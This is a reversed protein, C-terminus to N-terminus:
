NLPSGLPGQEPMEFGKARMREAIWALAVDSIIRRRFNARQDMALENYAHMASALLEAHPLPLPVDIDITFTRQQVRLQVQLLLHGPPAVTDGLKPGAATEIADNAFGLFVLAAHVAVVRQLAPHFDVLDAM